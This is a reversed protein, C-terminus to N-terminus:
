CYSPLNSMKLEIVSIRCGAFSHVVMWARCDAALWGVFLIRFGALPRFYVIGLVVCKRVRKVLRSQIVREKRAMVVTREFAFWSGCHSM